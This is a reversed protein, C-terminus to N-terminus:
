NPQQRAPQACNRAWWTQTASKHDALFNDAYLRALLFNRMARAARVAGEQDNDRFAADLIETLHQEIAPGAKELEAAVAKDVTQQYAVVQDFSATYRAVEAALDGMMKKKAPDAVTRELRSAREITEKAYKRSAEANAARSDVLFSKVYLRTDLMKIEVMAAENTQRALTRYDEVRDHIVQLTWTSWAATAVMILAIVGFGISIRTGIKLDSQFAKIM